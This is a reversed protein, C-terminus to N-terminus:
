SREPVEGPQAAPLVALLANWATKLDASVQGLLENHEALAQEEKLLSELDAAISALTVLGLMGATGKLSHAIRQAAPRDGRALHGDLTALDEAHALVFKRLLALYRDVKGRLYRLGQDVDIGPFKRLEELNTAPPSAV